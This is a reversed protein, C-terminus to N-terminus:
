TPRKAVVFDDIGRDYKEPLPNYLQDTSSVIEFGVDLLTREFGRLDHMWYSGEVQKQKIGQNAVFANQSNWVVKLMEELGEERWVGMYIHEAWDLPEVVRGIDATVLVGGPRLAEFANGLIRLPKEPDEKSRTCYLTHMITIADLSYSSCFEIDESRFDVNSYGALNKRAEKIMGPESDVGTIKSDPLAKALEEVLIGPGCGWDEIVADPPVLKKLEEIMRAVVEQYAKNKEITVLRYEKAYAEWDVKTM